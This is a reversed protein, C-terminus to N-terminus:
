EWGQERLRLRVLELHSIYGYFTGSLKGKHKKLVALLAAVTRPLDESVTSENLRLTQPLRDKRDEFWALLEDVEEEGYTQKYVHPNKERGDPLEQGEMM